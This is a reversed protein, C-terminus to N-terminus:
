VTKMIQHESFSSTALTQRKLFSQTTKKPSGLKCRCSGQHSLHYLISRCHLLGPNSGRTPFIGQLLASCGVGTNKGPSDWPCLLRAPLLDHPQLSDSVVSCSVSSVWRKLWPQRSVQGSTSVNCKKEGIVRSQFQSRWNSCMAAVTM